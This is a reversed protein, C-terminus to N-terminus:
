KERKPVSYTYKECYFHSWQPIAPTQFYAQNAHHHMPHFGQYANYDNYYPQPSYVEPSVQGQFGYNLDLNEKEKKIEKSKRPKKLENKDRLHTKTHKSLHDSRSFAKSCFTCQFRKEGTHTRIHRTLEDSRTFRKECGNEQCVFPKCGEHSRLHAKLHSTKGYLKGCRWCSHKRPQTEKSSKDRPKQCEPCECRSSKKSM